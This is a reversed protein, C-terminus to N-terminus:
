LSVNMKMANEQDVNSKPQMKEKVVQLMNVMNLMTINTHQEQDKGLKSRERRWM